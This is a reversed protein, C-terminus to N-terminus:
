FRTLEGPRARPLQERLWVTLQVRSSIGLRAFIHDVHADVTRKSIVLKEAIERNSLGSAVLSAIQQERKTLGGAERDRSGAGSGATLSDADGIALAVIRDLQQVAGATHLADFRAAGLADAAEAVARQHFEEMIANNGLRTGAREWLSHAAGLLWGARECRGADAALWALVELALAGGM